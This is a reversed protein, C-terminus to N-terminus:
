VKKFCVGFWVKVGVWKKARAGLVESLHEDVARESVGADEGEVLNTVQFGVKKAADLVEPISHCYSTPRIKVGTQPDTFGAQSIAGMEAHMNTVLFYTGIKMIASANEFFEKLPLHELVLTSIVGDAGSGQLSAPLLADSVPNLLDFVDLSVKEQESGPGNNATASQIATRAVELMGPSADVGVVEVQAALAAPTTQRASIANLLQITNRGTGCGLDVIKLQQGPTQAQSQANVLDLFRPLLARMEITDLKQLFNGDTDYVEAWKDYAEVTGMYKVPQDHGSNVKGALIEQITKSM